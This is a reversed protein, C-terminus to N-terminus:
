SRVTIVKQADTCWGCDVLSIRLQSGRPAKDLTTSWNGFEDVYATEGGVWKKSGPYKVAIQIEGDAGISGKTPTTVVAKGSVKRSDSAWSYGKTVKPTTLSTPNKVISLLGAPQLDVRQESGNVYYKTTLTGKIAVPGAADSFTSPCVYLTGRVTGSAADFYGARASGTRPDNSGQQSAALEVTLTIEEAETPTKAYTVDFPVDVCDPGDFAVDQYTVNASAHSTAGSLAGGAHAASASSVALVAAGIAILSKRMDEGMEPAKM